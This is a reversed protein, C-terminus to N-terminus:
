VLVIFLSFEIAAQMKLLIFVNKSKGAKSCFFMNPIM